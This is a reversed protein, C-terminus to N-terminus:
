NNDDINIENIKDQLTNIVVNTKHLISKNEETDFTESMINKIHQYEQLAENLLGLSEDRHIEDNLKDLRIIEFDFEQNNRPYSYIYNLIQTISMAHKYSSLFENNAKNYTNIIVPIILSDDKSNMDGIDINVQQNNLISKYIDNNYTHEAWIKM